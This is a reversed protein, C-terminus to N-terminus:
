VDQTNVFGEDLSLFFMLYQDWLHKEKWCKLIISHQTVVGTAFFQFISMVFHNQSKVKLDDRELLHSLTRLIFFRLVVKV